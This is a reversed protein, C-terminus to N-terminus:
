GADERRVVIGLVQSEMYGPFAADIAMPIMHVHLMMTNFTPTRLFDALAKASVQGLARREVINLGPAALELLRRIEASKTNFAGFSNGRDARFRTPVYQGRRRLENIIGLLIWDEDDVPTAADGPMQLLLQCRAKIATLQSRSLYPLAAVISDYSSQTAM